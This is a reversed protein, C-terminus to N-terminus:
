MALAEPSPNSSTLLAEIMFDPHNAYLGLNMMPNLEIPTVDGTEANISLDLSYASSNGHAQAWEKAFNTAFDIYRATTAPDSIVTDSNRVEEMREDFRLGMSDCPTFAEICGAGSVPKDGVIIMRYERIPRYAEQILLAKRAGEHSVTMWAIQEDRDMQQFLREAQTLHFRWAFGKVRSKVFGDRLGNTYLSELCTEIAEQTLDVVDIRRGAYRQFVPSLAYDQIVSTVSANNWLLNARVPFAIADMPRFIGYMFAPEAAPNEPVSGTMDGSWGYGRHEPVLQVPGIKNMAHLFHANEAWDEFDREVPQTDPAYHKWTALIDPCRAEAEAPYTEPKLMRHLLLM